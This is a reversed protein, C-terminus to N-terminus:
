QRHPLSRRWSPTSPDQHPCGRGARRGRRSPGVGASVSAARRRAGRVGRRVGSDAEASSSHTAAVAGAGRRRSDRRGPPRGRAPCAPRGSRRLRSRSRRRCSGASRRSREGTWRSGTSRSSAPFRCAPSTLSISSVTIVAVELELSTAPWDEPERLSNVPLPLSPEEKTTGGSGSVAFGRPSRECRRADGLRDTRQCGVSLSRASSLLVASGSTSGGAVGADRGPPAESGPRLSADVSSRRM